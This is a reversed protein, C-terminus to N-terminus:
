AAQSEHDSNWAVEWLWDAARSAFSAASFLFQPDKKAGRLWGDIYSANTRTTPAMGLRACLFASGLEAILEEIAYEPDGFRKGLVRNLRTHHATAHVAEHCFTGWYDEETKFLGFDPMAISDAKPNYSAQNTGGFTVKLGSGKLNKLFDRCKEHIVDEPEPEGVELMYKPLDDVQAVNFVTFTRTMWIQVPRGDDGTVVKGDKDKKDVKSTYVVHAGKEGKKVKAKLENAQRFTLWGGQGFGATMATAWLILINMGSYDRGTVANAPMHVPMAGNRWPKVWPPVGEELATVIQATVREQLDKALM